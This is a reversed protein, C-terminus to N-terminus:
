MRNGPKGPAGRSGQQAQAAQVFRRPPPSVVAPAVGEAEWDPPGQPKANTDRRGAKVRGLGWDEERRDSGVRWTKDRSPLSGLSHCVGKWVDPQLLSQFCLCSRPNPFASKWVVLFLLSISLLGAWLM